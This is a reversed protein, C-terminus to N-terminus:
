PKLYYRMKKEDWALRHKNKNYWTKMAEAQKDKEKEDEPHQFDPFGKPIHLIDSKICRGFPHINNKQMRKLHNALSEIAAANGWRVEAAHLLILQPQIGHRCPMKHAKEIYGDGRQWALVITAGLVNDLDAAGLAAPMRQDTSDFLLAGCWSRLYPHIDKNELVSIFLDRVGPMATKALYKAASGGFECGGEKALVYKMFDFVRPGGMGCLANFAENDIGSMKSNKWPDNKYSEILADIARTDGIRGLACAADRRICHRDGKKNDSELSRVLPM